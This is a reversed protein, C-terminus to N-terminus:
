SKKFPMGLLELLRKAHADTQATTVITVELGRTKDIKSYEIEPFVIQERFGLTYNGRGDFKADDIGRFDRMRPLVVSIIKQLFVYMRKGRLTVKLGIPDGAVLKYTAISRQAHTVIPKQGSIAALQEGATQLAKKNELAEGLGINIVIKTLRPLAMPNAISLDKKLKEKIEKEYLEQLNTM